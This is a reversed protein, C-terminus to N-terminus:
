KKPLDSKFKYGFERELIMREAKTRGLEEINAPAQKEITVEKPGEGIKGLSSGLSKATTKVGRLVADIEADTPDRNAM